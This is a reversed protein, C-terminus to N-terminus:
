SAEELSLEAEEDDLSAGKELLTILQKSIELQEHISKRRMREKELEVALNENVEEVETLEYYLEKLTNLNKKQIEQLKEEYECEIEELENKITSNELSLDEIKQELEIRKQEM